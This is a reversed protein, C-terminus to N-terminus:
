TQVGGTAANLTALAAAYAANFAQISVSSPEPDPNTTSSPSLAPVALYQTTAANVAATFALQAATNIADQSVIQDM